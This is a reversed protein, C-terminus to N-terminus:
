SAGQVTTVETFTPAGQASVEVTGWKVTDGNDPKLADFQLEWAAGDAATYDDLVSATAKDICFGLCTPDEPQLMVSYHKAVVGDSSPLPKPRDKAKRIRYNFAYTSRKIRVDENDGGEIKAEVKEGKETTLTSSDEVPTPHEIWTAGSTEIDKVFIRPKGWSLKSM